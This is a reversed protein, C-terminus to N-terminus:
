KEVESKELIGGITTLIKGDNFKIKYYQSYRERTRDVIEAEQGTYNDYLIGNYIIKDGIEHVWDIKTKKKTKSKAKM